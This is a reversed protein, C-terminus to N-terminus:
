QKEITTKFLDVDPTPVYARIITYFPKGSTPVGNKGEGNPSLTITYTGDKNVEANDYTRAYIGKDNPMLLKTEMSYVTVSFYGGKEFMNAPTTLVYTNKGNLFEGKSDKQAVNYRVTGTPTGLQGIRVGTALSIFGAEGSKHGFMVDPSVMPTLTDLIALAQKEIKPSFKQVNRLMSGKGDKLKISERLKKVEDFNNAILMRTFVLGQDTEINVVIFDGKPVSQGPRIILIPKTPNKVVLPVNHKMDFVAVSFFKDYKPVTLIAPKKSVSFWSYGYDVNAQPSIVTDDEPTVLGSFWFTGKENKTLWRDMMKVQEQNPFEKLYEEVTDLANATGAGMSLLSMMMILFSVKKMINEM